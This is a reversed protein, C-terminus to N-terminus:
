PVILGRWCVSRISRLIAGIPGAYLQFIDVEEDLGHVDLHVVDLADKQGPPKPVVEVDALGSEDPHERVNRGLFDAEHPIRADGPRTVEVHVDARGRGVLFGGHLPQHRRDLLDGAGRQTEVTLFGVDDLRAQPDRVRRHADHEVRTREILLAIRLHEVFVDAHGLGIVADQNGQRHVPVPHRLVHLFAHLDAAFM